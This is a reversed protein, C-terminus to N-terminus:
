KSINLASELNDNTGFLEKREKVFKVNAIDRCRIEESFFFLMAAKM